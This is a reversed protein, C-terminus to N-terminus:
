IAVEFQRCPSHRSQADDVDYVAAESFANLTWAVYCQAIDPASHGVKPQGSGVFWSQHLVASKLVDPLHHGDGDPVGDRKSPLKPSAVKPDVRKAQQLVVFGINLLPDIHHVLNVLVGPEGDDAGAAMVRISTQKANV